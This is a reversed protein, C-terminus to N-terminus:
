PGLQFGIFASFLCVFFASSSSGASLAVLQLQGRVLGLWRGARAPKKRQSINQLISMSVEEEQRCRVYEEAITPGSIKCKQQVGRIDYM